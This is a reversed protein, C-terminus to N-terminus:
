ADVLDISLLECWKRAACTGIAAAITSRESPGIFEGYEINDPTLDTRQAAAETERATLAFTPDYHTPSTAIELLHTEVVVRRGYLDEWERDDECQELKLRLHEIVAPLVAICERDTELTIGVDTESIPGALGYAPQGSARPIEHARM